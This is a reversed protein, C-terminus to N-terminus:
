RPPFLGSGCNPCHAYSRNLTITQNYNTTLSRTDRGHAEMRQGCGACSPREEESADSIDTAASALAADELMRARAKAWREDLATEIERFTAKPHQLRWEHFGVYVEKALKEWRAELEEKRCM